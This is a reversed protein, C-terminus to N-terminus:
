HQIDTPLRVLGNTLLQRGGKGWPCGNSGRNQSCVYSSGVNDQLRATEGVIGVERGQSSWGLRSSASLPLHINPSKPDRLPSHLLSYTDTHCPYQPRRLCAHTMGPPIPPHQQHNPSDMINLLVPRSFISKFIYSPEIVWPRLYAPHIRCAHISHFLPESVMHVSLSQGCQPTKPAPLRHKLTLLSILKM